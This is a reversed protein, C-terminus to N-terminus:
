FIKWAEKATKVHSIRHFENTSVGCFITNIAKSNANELTFAVKDKEAKPTTPRVWGNEVSDWVTEDIACLFACM